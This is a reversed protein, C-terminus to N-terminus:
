GTSAAHWGCNPRDVGLADLHASFVVLAEDQALFVIDILRYDPDVEAPAVGSAYSYDFDITDNRINEALEALSAAAQRPTKAWLQHCAPSTVNYHYREGPRAERGYEVILTGDVDPPLIVRESRGAEDFAVRATTTGTSAVGLFQSVLESPAPVAVFEVEIGLENHLEQEAARPDSVLDVIELHIESELYIIKFPHAAAPQPRIETFVFVALALVVITAAALSIPRWRHVPPRSDPAQMRRYAAARLERGLQQEFDSLDHTMAQGRRAPPAEFEDRLRRLGRFVLSRASGPKCNVRHAIEAYDLQEILRLRVAESSKAPVRALAKALREADLQADSAEIEEWGASATPPTQLQLRRRAGTSVRNKRWMRKLQNNAIGYLWQRPAGKVPDYHEVGALAAAFTEAVLDSAVDRDRTRSWFFALLARVNRSYFVGFAEPDRAAEVLLDGDSRCDERWYSSGPRATAMSPSVVRM